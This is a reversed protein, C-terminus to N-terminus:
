VDKKLSSSYGDHFDNSWKSFIIIKFRLSNMPILTISELYLVNRELNMENHYMCYKISHAHSNAKSSIKTGVQERSLSQCDYFNM